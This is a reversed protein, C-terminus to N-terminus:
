KKDEGYEHVYICSEHVYICSFIDNADNSEKGCKPCKYGSRMRFINCITMKIVSILTCVDYLVGYYWANSTPRYGKSIRKIESTVLITKM